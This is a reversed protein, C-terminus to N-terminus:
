YFNGKLLDEAVDIAGIPTVSNEKFLNLIKNVKMEDSSLHKLEKEETSIESEKYETKIIKIGYIEKEHKVLEDENIMKYYELKIPHKIGAEQLIEKEIFSGGYFVKM